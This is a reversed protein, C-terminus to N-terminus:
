GQNRPKRRHNDNENKWKRIETFETWIAIPYRSDNFGIEEVYKDFHNFVKLTNRKNM